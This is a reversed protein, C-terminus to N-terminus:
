PGSIVSAGASAMTLVADLASSAACENRKPNIPLQPNPFSTSEPRDVLSSSNLLIPWTPSLTHILHHLVLTAAYDPRRDLEGGVPKVNKGLLARFCAEISALTPTFRGTRALIQIVKGNCVSMLSSTLLGYIAPGIKYSREEDDFAACEFGTSLIAVDPQFQRAIPIVIVRLAALIEAGGVYGDPSWAININTGRKSGEGINYINGISPNNVCRHISIYVVDSEKLLCRETGPAPAEGFNVVLVRKVNLRSQAIKTLIAPYNVTMPSISPYADGGFPRVIAFGNKLGNRVVEEMLKVCIGCALLSLALFDNPPKWISNPQKTKLDFDKIWDFSHVLKVASVDVPASTVLKLKDSLEFCKFGKLIDTLNVQNENQRSLLAELELGHTDFTAIGSVNVRQISPFERGTEERSLLNSLPPRPHVRMSPTRVSPAQGPNNFGFYLGGNINSKKESPEKNEPFHNVPLLSPSALPAQKPVKNQSNSKRAGNQNGKMRMAGKSESAKAEHSIPRKKIKTNSNGTAAVGKPARPQPAQTPIDKKKAQPEKRVAKPRCPPKLRSVISKGQFQCFDVFQDVPQLSSCFTDEESDKALNTSTRASTNENNTSTQSKGSTAITDKLTNFERSALNLPASEKRIHGILASSSSSTSEKNSMPRAHKEGEERTSQGGRTKDLQEESACVKSVPHYRKTYGVSKAGDFGNKQVVENVDEREALISTYKFGISEIDGNNPTHTENCNSGKCKEHQVSRGTEDPRIPADLVVM